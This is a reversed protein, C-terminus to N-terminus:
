AHADRSEKQASVTAIAALATTEMEKVLARTGKATDIDGAPRLTAIRELAIRYVIEPEM